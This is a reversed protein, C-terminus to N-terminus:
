INVEIERAHFIVAILMHLQKNTAKAMEKSAQGAQTIALRRASGAGYWIYFYKEMSWTAFAEYPADVDPTYAKILDLV